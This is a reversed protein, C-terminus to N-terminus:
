RFSSLKDPKKELRVSTKKQHKLSVDEGGLLRAETEMIVSCVYFFTLKDCKQM